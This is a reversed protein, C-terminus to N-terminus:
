AATALRVLEVFTPDMELRTRLVNKVFALDTSGLGRLHSTAKEVKEHLYTALDVTGNRVQGALSVSSTPETAAPPQVASRSPGDSGQPPMLHM